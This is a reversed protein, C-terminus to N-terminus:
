PKMEEADPEGLAAREMYEEWCSYCASGCFSYDGVSGGGRDQEVPAGCWECKSM